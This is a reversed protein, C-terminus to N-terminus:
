GKRTRHLAKGILSHKTGADELWALAAKIDGSRTRAAEALVDERLQPSYSHEPAKSYQQMLPGSVLENAQDPALEIDFFQATEALKQAPQALFTDFDLWSVMQESVQELATMECAWAMAARQAEDLEWLNFPTEGIRNHLRKLRSSSLVALEARSNDGALITQLYREPSLTLLLAKRRNRLLDPAIDSAFSTAKVLARQDPHFTRSFWQVVRALRKDFTAASWPSHAQGRLEKLEAFQRLLQPERLALTGSAAGLLRALLTSGVHGIHFIFQVDSRIDPSQSELANWDAWQMQRQQPPSGGIQSQAQTPQLLRNDLFSAAEYDAESMAVLLVRDNPLDLQHAFLGADQAFQM